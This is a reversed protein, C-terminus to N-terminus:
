IELWADSESRFHDSFVFSPELLLKEPNEVRKTWDQYVEHEWFVATYEKRARGEERQANEGRLYGASNVHIGGM